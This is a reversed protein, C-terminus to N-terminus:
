QRRSRLQMRLRQEFTDTVQDLNELINTVPTIKEFDVGRWFSEIQSETTLNHLKAKRYIYEKQSENLMEWRPKLDEPILQVYRPENSSTNVRNFVPKAPTQDLMELLKDVTALKEAKNENKSENLSKLTHPILEQRCWKEIVPSYEDVLWNQIEPAFENTVWNEVVPSYENVLWSQVEPAFENVVWNQVEPAFENVVWKEVVPLMNKLQERSTQNAIKEVETTYERTIWKEIAPSIEEVIWKEIGEALKPIDVRSEDLEASLDRIKERQRSVEDRLKEVERQLSELTKDMNENQKKEIVMFTNEDISECVLGENAVNLKAQSFGPTGVLDYTKLEELTVKGKSDITGVARSSVFLPLGGEVLAQAIKGKPTNLLKITGTVVGSEDISIDEVVHSVNNYNINMTSEPHELEGPCGETAIRTKMKEIMKSYNSTEYVRNNGNRVGCVGFTGKLRIFGDESRDQKMTSVNNMKEYLYVRSMKHIKYKISYYNTIKYRM